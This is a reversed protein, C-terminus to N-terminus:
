KKLAVPVAYFIVGEVIRWQRPFTNVSRNDLLSLPICLCVWMREKSVIHAACFVVRGVIRRDNSINKILCRSSLCTGLGNGLLSLHSVCLSVCVSPFSKHLVGSLLAWNKHYKYWTTYINTWDNLFQNPLYVYLCVCVCIDYRMLTSKNKESHSFYALFLRYAYFELVTVERINTTNTSQCCEAPQWNVLTSGSTLYGRQWCDILWDILWGDAMFCM